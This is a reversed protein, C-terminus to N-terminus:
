PALREIKWSQDAQLSFQFRDHLRNARGQWFEVTQPVIRFGGWFDPLPVERNSFKRKMEDMKMELLSRSTIISSQQSVWAGLQSGRPRSLYYKLSEATSVKEVRGVIKVQRELDLWPFLLAAQPNEAIQTAKKSGYNTFFVFGRHDFIKLLVTRISPVGDTGVTALSMANPEHIKVNLAEQFWREFQTFPDTALQELTLGGKTYENRLDQINMDNKSLFSSRWLENNTLM